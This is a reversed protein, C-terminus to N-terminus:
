KSYKNIVKILEKIKVPKAVFPWGAVLNKAESTEKETIVATLFVIPIGATATDEKLAAAIDSGSMGPMLIDLLILDPLLKKTLEVGKTSDSCATVRFKGGAELNNKVFFCFDEEDDILLINKM